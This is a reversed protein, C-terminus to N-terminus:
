HYIHTIGLSRLYIRKEENGVTAYIEAGIWKAVQIAALGVGGAAAHILIKEGAKLQALKMLAAYATIYVIPLAAAEVYSLLSPKKVLLAENVVVNDAFAGPTIGFVDDGVMVRTVASGVALVRGSCELGIEGQLGQYLNLVTLVDRLNVGAAKIQILVDHANLTGLQLPKFQLDSLLDGQTFAIKYHQAYPLVNKISTHKLLGQFVQDGRVVLVDVNKINILCAGLRKTMEPTSNQFATDIQVISGKYDYRCQAILGNLLTNHVVVNDQENVRYLLETIVYLPLGQASSRQAVSRLNEAYAYDQAFYIIGACNQNNMTELVLSEQTNILLSPQFGTEHLFAVLVERYHTSTDGIIVWKKGLAESAPTVLECSLAPWAIDYRHMEVVPKKDAAPAQIWYKKRQFAYKPLSVKKLYPKIEDTYFYVADENDDANKYNKNELREIIEELTKGVVTISKEFHARTIQSSYCVDYVAENTSKLFENYKQIEQLLGDDTKSSIILLHERNNLQEQIAPPINIMKEIPAEELIIHANTGSFGFSSIGAYRVHEGEKKWAMLKLPIRAPISELNIEPNLEQFHLHRPIKEHQLALLTKIVGAIGAAAELHGINTKVTGITLPKERGKFIEALANVEIPDGLATGTGHAEIYDIDGPELQAQTLARRIVTEQAPGNPVTLGGSAGDQNVASGKIIALIKDNDRQADSLRKLVVIGCGEGRVYGDARKDFTKCLGDPALMHAQSFDISVDPSLLVNVGGALALNSDGNRLSLCAEHLSVLSSSCATDLALSPGKLGLTYSIRGTATSAANGTALYADIQEKSLTKALLDSYDHSSIGVFVGTLTGKFSEPAIRADELAEWSVELLLRQQDLMEAERPSIGFFEADFEDIPVTLFSSKSSVIKGKAEPNPDYYEDVDWRSKPIEISSDFGQELLQWFEEVSNAGGPFRCSMGIIAIPDQQGLYQIKEKVAPLSSLKLLRTLYSVLDDLNPYDFALTNPLSLGLLVQLHNKLELAMLSDMGMDFFGKEEDLKQTQGIVNKVENIIAQKLILERQELPAM